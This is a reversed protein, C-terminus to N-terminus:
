IMGAIVRGVDAIAAERADDSLNSETFYVCALIPARGPPRLIAIDNRAGNKGNGTKDGERWNAPIGARLRRAGLTNAAMWDELRQRSTESLVKGLLVNKMDGLMAAPTTTDRPDGPVASNLAVEIRDLRSLRDGLTRAFRTWGAPGGVTQLLLNAATNDSHEIAAECLASLAMGGDKAHEETVPSYTVLDGRSYTIFRDLHEKGVDIRSLVATILLFKFTSCMAFREHARHEIRKGSQTDLVAVGLRGGTRREIQAIPDDGALAATAPVAAIAALTARRTIM